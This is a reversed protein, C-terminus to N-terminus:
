HAEVDKSWEWYKDLKELERAGISILDSEPFNNAMFFSMAASVDALEEILNKGLNIDNWYELSGGNEVIKSLVTNLESMEEQLKALGKWRDSRITYM